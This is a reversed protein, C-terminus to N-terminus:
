RLGDFSFTAAPALFGLSGEAVRGVCTADTSVSHSLVSPDYCRFLEIAGDFRSEAVWGLRRLVTAQPSECDSARSLMHDDQPQFYCDYLPASNALRDTFLAGVDDLWAYATDTATTTAWIDKGRRYTSLTLRPVLDVPSGADVPSLSMRRRVLYRRNELPDAAHVYMYYVWFTDGVFESSGELSLM